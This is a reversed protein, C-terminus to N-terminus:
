RREDRRERIGTSLFGRRPLRINWGDGNQGSATRKTRSSRSASRGDKSAQSTKGSRRPRAGGAGSRVTSAPLRGEGTESFDFSVGAGDPNLVLVASFSKGTRQSVFGSLLATRRRSLLETLDAADLDRSLIRKSIRLTCGSRSCVVHFRELVVPSGCVPCPPLSSADIVGSGGGGQVELNASRVKEVIETAYARLDQELKSADEKGEAVQNLRLEWLGTLEPSALKEVGVAEVLQILREGKPTPILTKRELIVYGVAKLREIIAARTAPTGLGRGKMAERLEEDELEKGANEMASLLAAETYRKPPKTQKEEVVTKEISVNAGVQLEPVPNARDDDNDSDRARRKSQANNLNIDAIRWGPEIETTGTAILTEGSADLVLKVKRDKAPPMFNMLFRRVILDYIKRELDDLQGPKVHTPIIAHHDTVKADNVVASRMAYKLNLKGKLFQYEPQELVGSVLRPFVKALDRTVYRSDTRPYTILKSEYLHQAIDLTKKATLSYLRNADRQLTTLDYLQPPNETTVEAKSDTVLAIGGQEIKKAIAQARAKDSIRSGNEGEWRAAFTVNGDTLLVKITCFNEPKFNRIERERRVLIALTPTQVRGVSLVGEGYRGFKASFARSANMGILWDGRSRALASAYLNDFEKGDRIQQFGERIAEPTLSSVWLRKVPLNCGTFEYINRFILEGERGADCANIVLDARKMLDAILKLQKRAEADSGSADRRALVKWKEPLIPLLSLDWSEYKPDYDEPRGNDALHGLAWTLLYDPSELYDGRKVFGGLAEAISRAVSPKEAIILAPVM